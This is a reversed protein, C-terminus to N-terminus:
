LPRNRVNEHQSPFPLGDTMGGTPWTARVSKGWLDPFLDLFMRGAIVDVVLLLCCMETRGGNMVIALIIKVVKTNAIIIVVSNSAAVAWSQSSECSLQSCHAVAPSHSLFGPKM